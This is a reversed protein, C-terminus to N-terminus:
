KPLFCFSLELSLPFEEIDEDRDGEHWRRRPLPSFFSSGPPHFSTFPSFSAGDGLATSGQSEDTHCRHHLKSSGELIYVKNIELLIPSPDGDRLSSLERSHIIHGRGPRVQRVHNSPSQQTYRFNFYVHPLHPFFYRSRPRAHAARPAGWQRPLFM